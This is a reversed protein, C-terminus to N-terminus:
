EVPIGARQLSARLRDNEQMLDLMVAMSQVTAEFNSQLRRIRRV